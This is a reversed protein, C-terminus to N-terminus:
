GRAPPRESPVLALRPLSLPLHCLPNLGAAIITDANVLHLASVHPETQVMAELAEVVEADTQYREPRQLGLLECELGLAYYVWRHALMKVSRYVGPPAPQDSFLPRSPVFLIKKRATSPM